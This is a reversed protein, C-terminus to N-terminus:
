YEGLGWLNENSTLEIVESGFTFESGLTFMVFLNQARSNWTTRSSWCIYDLMNTAGQIMGLQVYSNSAICVVKTTRIDPVYILRSPVKGNRLM